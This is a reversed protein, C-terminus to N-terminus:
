RVTSNAKIFSEPAIQAAQQCVAGSGYFTRAGIRAGGNVIAGTSIHCHEEVVSDHEILSRSNIICNKGVVAGANIMAGHMVITGPELHARPSVYALPSVIVPLVFGMESLLEFLEIRRCATRLQGITILAHSFAKRLRSLEEDAGLIQYDFVMKGVQVRHDLIGAVTFVGEQEIVDICSHCHGGGGLLLLEPKKTM